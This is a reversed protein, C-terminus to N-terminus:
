GVGEFRQFLSYCATQDSVGVMEPLLTIVVEVNAIMRPKYFLEVVNMRVRHLLSQAFAGLVPWAAAKEMVCRAAISRNLNFGFPGCALALSGRCFETWGNFRGVSDLILGTAWELGGKAQTPSCPPGNLGAKPKLPSVPHGM